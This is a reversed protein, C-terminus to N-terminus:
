CKLDPRSLVKSLDKIERLTREDANGNQWVECNKFPICPPFHM